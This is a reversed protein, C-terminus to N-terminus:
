AILHLLGIAARTRSTLCERGGILRVRCYAFGRTVNSALVGSSSMRHRNRNQALVVLCRHLRESYGKLRGLCVHDKSLLLVRGM